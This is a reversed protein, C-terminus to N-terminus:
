RIADKRGWTMRRLVNDRDVLHHKLAAGAHAALLLALLLASLTHVTAATEATSKVGPVWFDPMAFWNFVMNQINLLDQNPSAASMIWGSLPLVFMLLYLLKHTIEAISWQWGPMAAPKAPSTPNFLRWVVRVLALTFIVFGWSKHLQTLSFQRLLDDVANTMYIGLGLQFLILAAMVWHILRTVLGWSEATNTAHM